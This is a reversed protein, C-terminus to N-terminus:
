WSIWLCLRKEEISSLITRRMSKSLSTFVLSNSFIDIQMVTLVTKKIGNLYYLTHNETTLFSNVHKEVIFVFYRYTCTAKQLLKIRTRVFIVSGVSAENKVRKVSQCPPPPALLYAQAAAHPLDANGTRADWSLHAWISIKFWRNGKTDGYVTWALDGCLGSTGRSASLSIHRIRGVLGGAKGSLCCASGEQSPVHWELVCELWLFKWFM